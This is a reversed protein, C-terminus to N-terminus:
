DEWEPPLIAPKDPHFLACRANMQMIFTYLRHNNRQNRILSENMSKFDKRIYYLIILISGNLAWWALEAFTEPM